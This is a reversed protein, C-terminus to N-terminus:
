QEDGFIQRLRPVAGALHGNILEAYVREREERRIRDLAADARIYEVAPENAYKPDEFCRTFYGDGVEADADLWIREPSGRTTETM